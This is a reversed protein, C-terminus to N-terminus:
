QLVGVGAGGKNESKGAVCWLLLSRVGSVLATVAVLLSLLGMQAPAACTHAGRNKREVAGDPEFVCTFAHASSAPFFVLQASLHLLLCANCAHPRGGGTGKKSECCGCVDM